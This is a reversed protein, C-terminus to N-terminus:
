KLQALLKKYRPKDELKQAALMKQIAPKGATRGWVLLWQDTGVQRFGPSKYGAAAALQLSRLNNHIQLQLAKQNHEESWLYWAILNGVLARADDRGWKIGPVFLPGGNWPVAKAKADFAYVKVVASPVADEGQAALTGLYGAAQRRVNQNKATAMAKVLSDAGVALIAPALSQRLQPVTITVNLLDEANAEDGKETLKAVLRLGVPRGLAPFQPILKALELLQESTEAMNVRGAAAWTRVLMAQNKDGHIETLRKEVDKGGIESMCVIAWGRLAMDNGEIAEGILDPVVPKGRKILEDAADSAKKPDALQDILQITTLKKGGSKKEQASATATLGTVLAGVILLAATGRGIRGRLTYVAGIVLSSLLITLGSPLRSENTSVAVQTDSNPQDIFSIAGYHLTGPQAKGGPVMKTADYFERKNRRTPMRYSAFKLNQKALVERPFNGDVVTLTMSDLDKLAAAVTEKRETELAQENFKDIAPGRLGLREGIRLLMKEKEEHPHSLRGEKVALLDAAFLDKAAGNHPTPNRRQALNGWQGPFGGRVPRALQLRKGGTPAPQGKVQGKGKVPQPMQKRLDEITGGIIRLPLPETVNRFLESGPIQRVVYEEPISKIKSPKDSLIYVINRLDGDNFTSLRMPVVLEDVKFRFGMAQVHGDFTAGAPLKSNVKRMGPRPDVGKKQGVKTKVAVFCWGAEVYDGCAADMGKPYKYGHDAMWKSLAKPSGAELVAVEYMGVAEQKVVRVEDEAMELGSELGAFVKDKAGRFRANKAFFRIRLDVVVEPPDIAAAVHPFINDSVKRIEPISPFPILMGFEDVKGQFGPRIVFTEVGDKYFVYTKQQGIRTIPVAGGVYVPPVMGCPDAQTPQTPALAAVLGLVVTVLLLRKM